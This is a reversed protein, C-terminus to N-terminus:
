TMFKKLANNWETKIVMNTEHFLALNETIIDM